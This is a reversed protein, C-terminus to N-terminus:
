SAGKAAYAATLREQAAAPTLVAVNDHFAQRERAYRTWHESGPECAEVNAIRDAVKALAAQPWRGMKEYIKACREERTAGKGTCAHVMDAIDQGFEQKLHGFHVQPCDELVDHLWGAAIQEDTGGLARIVGAVTALHIVYPRDGYRQGVHADSAFTIAKAILPNTM